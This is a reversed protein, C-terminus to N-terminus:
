RPSEAQAPRFLPRIRDMAQLGALEGAAILRERDAFSLQGETRPLVPSIVVDAQAIEFEKLRIMSIAFSQFLVGVASSIFADSPPYIVDVAIIKRAGLRRAAGVPVPSSIQGDGYLHGGIEAPAIIGPVASSARVAAGVDGANFIKLEGTRLDTAVSAFRIPFREILHQRAHDDIFRHLKDGKIFGKGGPLFGLSPLIWDNFTESGLEAMAKELELGSLGSAYLSGVISGASSGVILYPRLGNAELARIVGVHAYGRAGGGSLVLAVGPDHSDPPVAPEFRPDAGNRLQPSFTACAQLLLLVLITSRKRTM